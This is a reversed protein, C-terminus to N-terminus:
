SSDFDHLFFRIKQLVRARFDRFSKPDSPVSLDFGLINYQRSKNLLLGIQKKLQYKTIKVKFGNCNRIMSVFVAPMFCNRPGPARKEFTGIVKRARFAVRLVVVQKNQLAPRKIHQLPFLLLSLQM